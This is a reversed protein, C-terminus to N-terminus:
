TQNGHHLVSAAKGGLVFSLCGKKSNTQRLMTERSRDWRTCRFLFHEVTEKALDIEEKMLRLNYKIGGAAMTPTAKGRPDNSVINVLEEGDLLSCRPASMADTRRFKSRLRQVRGVDFPVCGVAAAGFPWTVM